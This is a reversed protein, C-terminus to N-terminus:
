PPASPPTRELFPSFEIQVTSVFTCHLPAAQQVTLLCFITKICHCELNFRTILSFLCLDGHAGTTVWERFTKACVRAIDISGVVM